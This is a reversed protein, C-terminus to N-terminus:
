KVLITKTYDFDFIPIVNQIGKSFCNSIAYGM